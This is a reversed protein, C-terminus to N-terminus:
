PVQVRGRVDSYSIGRRYSRDVVLDGTVGAVHVGGSGKREVLVSGGVDRLDVGGSGDSLRVTGRAGRLGVDGSGDEIQVDGRVDVLRIEGSGDHVRLAGGVGEVDIGGSGDELELPGVARIVVDGSGDQVRLPMDGPVEVVLDLASWEDDRLEDPTEVRVLVGSASREVRLRVRELIERSSARATGHARVDRLGPRGEIRLSGARAEVEVVRADGAPVSGAREATVEPRDWPQASLAAPVLLAAALLAARALSHPM